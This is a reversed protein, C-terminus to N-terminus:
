AKDDKRTATEFRYNVNYFFRRELSEKLEQIFRWDQPSLRAPLGLVLAGTVSSTAGYRDRPESMAFVCVPVTKDGAKAAM